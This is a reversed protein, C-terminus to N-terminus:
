DLSMSQGSGRCAVRNTALEVSFSIENPLEAVRQTSSSQHSALVKATRCEWGSPTRCNDDGNFTHARLANGRSWEIAWPKTAVAWSRRGPQVYGGPRELSQGDVCPSCEGGSISQRMRGVPCRSTDAVKGEGCIERVTCVRRRLSERRRALVDDSHIGRSGARSDLDQGEVMRCNVNPCADLAGPCLRLTCFHLKLARINEGYMRRQRRGPPPTPYLGCVGTVAIDLRGVRPKIPLALTQRDLNLPDLYPNGNRAWPTSNQTQSTTAAIIKNAVFVDM